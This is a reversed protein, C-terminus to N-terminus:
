WGWKIDMPAGVPTGVTSPIADLAARLQAWGEWAGVGTSPCGGRVQACASTQVTIAGLRLPVNTALGRAAIVAWQRAQSGSFTHIQPMAVVNPGAGSSVYLVDDITWGNNCATRGDFAQPCGDASGFNWLRVGTTEVYGRVWERAQRVPGWGPEIDVAGVVSVRPDAVARAREVVQAWLAGGSYGNFPTRGGSNSTGIAVEWPGAACAALAGAVSVTAAVIEDHSLPGGVSFGTSGGEVQRGFSLVVTGRPTRRAQDCMAQSMTPAVEELPKADRGRVYSGIAVVFEPSEPAPPAEPYWIPDAALEGLSTLVLSPQPSRLCGKACRGVGPSIADVNVRTGTSRPRKTGSAVVMVGNIPRSGRLQVFRSEPRRAWQDVERVPVGNVYIVARGAGPGALYWLSFTRARVQYTVVAGPVATALLDGGIAGRQGVVVWPAGDAAAPTATVGLVALVVVSLVRM